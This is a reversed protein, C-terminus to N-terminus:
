NDNKVLEKVQSLRQRKNPHKRSDKYEAESEESDSKFDSDEEDEGEDGDDPAEESSIELAEKASTKKDKRPRKTGVEEKAEPKKTKAGLTSQRMTEIGVVAVNTREGKM